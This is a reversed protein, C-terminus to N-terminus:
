IHSRAHSDAIAQGILRYAHDRKEEETFEITVIEEDKMHLHLKYLPQEMFTRRYAGFAMTIGVIAIVLWIVNNPQQRQYHDALWIIILAAGFGLYAALPRAPKYSDEKVSYIYKTIYLAHKYEIRSSSIFLDPFEGNDYRTEM